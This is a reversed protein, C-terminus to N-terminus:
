KIPTSGRGKRKKLHSTDRLFKFANNLKFKLSENHLKEEKIQSILDKKKTNFKQLEQEEAELLESYKRKSDQIKTKQNEIELESNQISKLCQQYESSIFNKEESKSQIKAILTKVKTQLEWVEIQNQIYQQTEENEINNDSIFNAIKEKNIRIEDKVTEAQQSKKIAWKSASNIRSQAHDVDNFIKSVTIRMERERRGVKKEQNEEENFKEYSSVEKEARDLGLFAENLQLILKHTLISTNSAHEEGTGAYIGSLQTFSNKLPNTIYASELRRTEYFSPKTGTRPNKDFDDNMFEASDYPTYHFHVETLLSREVDIANFKPIRPLAPLPWAPFDSIRVSSKFVDDFFKHSLYTLKQNYIPFVDPQLNGIHDRLCVISSILKYIYDEQGADKRYYLKCHEITKMPVLRIIICEGRRNQTRIQQFFESSTNVYGDFVILADFKVLDLKDQDRQINGDGPLLHITTPSGSIDMPTGSNKSAKKSERQVNNGVYRKVIKNGNCGLLLAEVLDFFKVNNNMVIGIHKPRQKTNSIIVNMLDRLVNFKGSTEALKNPMEKMSLNKPMYHNILLYPHTCVLMCNEVCIELSKVILDRTDNAECYKLIDPYHLSVIQDTLEKQFEYMPTPLEYDGSYNIEGLDLDIISPEPTGDLIKLLNM